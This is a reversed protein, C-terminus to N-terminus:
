LSQAAIHQIPMLMILFYPQQPPHVHPSSPNISTPSLTHHTPCIFHQQRPHYPTTCTSYTPFVHPFSPTISTPSLTHYLYLLHPMRPSFIPNNLHTIPHPVPITLPALSHLRLSTPTPTLHFCFTHLSHPM